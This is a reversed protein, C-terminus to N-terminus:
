LCRFCCSYRICVPAKENNRKTKNDFSKNNILVRILFLYGGKYFFKTIKKRARFERSQPSSIERNFDPILPNSRMLKLILYLNRTFVSGLSIANNSPNAFFSLCAMSVM